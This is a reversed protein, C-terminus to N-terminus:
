LNLSLQSSRSTSACNDVSLPCVPATSKMSTPSTPETAPAAKLYGADTEKTSTDPPQIFLGDKATLGCRKCYNSLPSAFDHKAHMVGNISCLPTMDGERVLREPKPKPQRKFVESVKM